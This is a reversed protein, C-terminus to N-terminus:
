THSLCKEVRQKLTFKGHPDMEGIEIPLEQCGDPLLDRFKLVRYALKIAANRATTGKLPGGDASAFTLPSNNIYVDGISQVGHTITAAGTRMAPHDPLDRMKYLAKYFDEINM